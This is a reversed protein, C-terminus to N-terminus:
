VNESCYLFAGQDCFDTDICGIYLLLEHYKLSISVNAMQLILIFKCTNISSFRFGAYKKKLMPTLGKAGAVNAKLKSMSGMLGSLMGRSQGVEREM